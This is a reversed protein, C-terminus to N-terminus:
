GRLAWLMDEVRPHDGAFRSRYEYLLEGAEDVVFVGGQQFADGEISKQRFGGRYARLASRLTNLNVSSRLDRRLHLARHLDLTPDTYIPGTFGSKERFGAIFSPSGNGIIVLRAGAAEIAGRSRHLQM